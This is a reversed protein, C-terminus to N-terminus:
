LPFCLAPSRAFSCATARRRVLCTPVCTFSRRREKVHRASARAPLATHQPCGLILWVSIFGRQLSWALCLRRGGGHGGSSCICANPGTGYCLFLVQRVRHRRCGASRARCTVTASTTIWRPASRLACPALATGSSRTAGRLEPAGRTDRRSSVVLIVFTQSTLKARLHGDAHMKSERPARRPMARHLYCAPPRGPATEAWTARALAV